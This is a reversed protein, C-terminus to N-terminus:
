PFIRLTFGLGPWFKPPATPPPEVGGKRQSATTAWSISAALIGAALGASKIASFRAVELTRLNALAVGRRPLVPPGEMPMVISDNAVVPSRLTMRIGSETTVRVEQPRERAIWPAPSAEVPQWTKCATLSVLVVLPVSAAFRRPPIGTKM